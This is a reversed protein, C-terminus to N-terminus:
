IPSFKFKDQSVHGNIFIVTAVTASAVKTAFVFAVASTVFLRVLPTALHFSLINMVQYCSFLTPHVPTFWISATTPLPM